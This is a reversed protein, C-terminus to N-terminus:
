EMGTVEQRTAYAMERLRWEEKIMVLLQQPQVAQNQFVRLNREKWVSSLFSCSATVLGILCKRKKEKRKKADKLGVIGKKRTNFQKRHQTPGSKCM